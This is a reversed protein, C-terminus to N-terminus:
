PSERKQDQEKQARMAYALPVFLNCVMGLVLAAFFYAVALPKVLFFVLAFMAITLLHKGIEGRVMQKLALDPHVTGRRTRFAMFASPVASTLGGFFLSYSVEWNVALGFVALVLSLIFQAFVIQKIM